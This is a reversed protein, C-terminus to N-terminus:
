GASRSAEWSAGSALRAYLREYRTVMRDMSLYRQAFVRVAGRDAQAMRVAAAAMASVDGDPVLAGVSPDALVEPIGGRAFAVVPTGCALAEAVVLGYPEDWRPTVLAASSAGVLAALQRMPLHGHYRVMPGLHPRVAREFYAPDVVPGALALPKGAQRAAQIALDVGKHPVIRGFWVLQDGGPGAPWQALDVGNLVVSADVGPHAGRWASAIFESVAAFPGPPAAWAPAATVASELWPTPPTHLTTLVPMPLLGAMAVPLHHLAHNHVVDFRDALPQALAMMLRLYSHHESMFQASPMSVDQAATESPQWGPTPFAFDPDVGDSGQQAFLSVTHGRRRLRQVLHWVVAELGGAFPQRVPYRSTAIVAIRLRHRSRVPQALVAPPASTLPTRTVRM